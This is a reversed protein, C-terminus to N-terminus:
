IDYYQNMIRSVEKEIGDGTYVCKMLCRKINEEFNTGECKDLVGQLTLQILVHEGSQQDLIINEYVKKNYKESVIPYEIIAMERWQRFTLSMYGRRNKQKMTVIRITVAKSNIIGIVECRIM